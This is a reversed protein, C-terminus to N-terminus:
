WGGRRHRPYAQAGYTGAHTLGGSGLNQVTMGNGLPVRGSGRPGIGLLERGQPLASAVDQWAAFSGASLGAVPARRHAYYIAAVMASLRDDHGGRTSITENGSPLLKVGVSSLERRIWPDDPLRLRGDVMLQRVASYAEVKNTMSWPEIRLFIGQRQFMESLPAASAQDTIVELSGRFTRRLASTKGVAHSPSLMQGRPAALAGVVDVIVVPGAPGAEVHAVALGFTDSFFAPDIAVVHSAGPNSPGEPSASRFSDTCAKVADDPFYDGSFGAAFECAYERAFIRPNREKRRASEETILSPNAIWSPAPGAVIRGDADGATIATYFSGEDTWPSSAVILPANAHTATMARASALVEDRDFMAVGEAQWKAFEDAGVFFSRWGSAAAVNAAVVRIGRPSDVLDVVEGRPEHPVELLRLWSSIISLGKAAEDIRRSLITAYHREGNPVDFKGALAFFCALRYLATSKAGGRGACAWFELATGGEYADLYRSVHGRWWDSLPPVGLSSLRDDFKLFSASLSATSV